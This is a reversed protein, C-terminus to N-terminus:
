IQTMCRCTALEWWWIIHFRLTWIGGEIKLRLNQRWKTLTYINVFSSNTFLGLETKKINIACIPTPQMMAVVFGKDNLHNCNQCIWAPQFKAHKSETWLCLKQFSSTFHDKFQIHKLSTCGGWFVAHQQKNKFYCSFPHASDSLSDQKM